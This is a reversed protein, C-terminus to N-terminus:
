KEALTKEIFKKIEEKKEGLFRDYKATSERISIIGLEKGL